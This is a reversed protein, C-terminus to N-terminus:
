VHDIEDSVRKEVKIALMCASVELIEIQRNRKQHEQAVALSM